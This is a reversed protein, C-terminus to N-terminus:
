VNKDRQKLSIGYGELLNKDSLLDAIAGLAREVGAAKHRNRGFYQVLKESPTDESDLEWFQGWSKFRHGQIEIELLKSKAQKDANKVDSFFDFCQKGVKFVGLIVAVASTPEIM